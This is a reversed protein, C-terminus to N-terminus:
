FLHSAPIALMGVNAARAWGRWEHASRGRLRHVHYSEPGRRRRRWISECRPLFEGDFIAMRAEEAVCATALACGMHQGAQPTQTFAQEHSSPPALMLSVPFM